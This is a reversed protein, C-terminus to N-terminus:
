IALNNQQLLSKLRIVESHLQAKEEEFKTRQRFFDEDTMIRERKSLDEFSALEKAKMARESESRLLKMEFEELSRDRRRIELELDEIRTAFEVAKNKLPAAESLLQQSDALSKQLTRVLDTQLANQERSFRLATELELIKSCSAKFEGALRTQEKEFERQSIELAIKGEEIKGCAARSEAHAGLLTLSLDAEMEAIRASVSRLAAQLAHTHNRIEGAVPEPSRLAFNEEAMQALESLAQHKSGGLQSLIDDLRQKLTAPVRVNFFADARDDSRFGSMSPLLSEHTTSSGRAGSRGPLSNESSPQDPHSASIELPKDHATM